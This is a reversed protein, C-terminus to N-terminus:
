RLPLARTYGETNRPLLAALHLFRQARHPGPSFPPTRPSKLWSTGPMKHSSCPVQVGDVVAVYPEAEPM